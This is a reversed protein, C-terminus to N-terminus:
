AVLAELARRYRATSDAEAAHRGDRVQWRGGILVDRIPTANGSFVLADLLADGSRAVLAPSDPDLVLLDARHGAALAGVPRGSARAGGALARSWLAAGTNPRTPGAVILRRRLTLRQGYDLWRLEEVPSVSIHSDSGVGLTGGAALFDTLPFLGDGLNAETTPCLGAVAGSAALRRTEQATMHTAHILCWRADVPMHDYLWDVPRAGSWALCDEVEKTQEAVHIHVPATADLTHLGAVADRLEEPTVARLSHPALGVRCQPDGDTEVRLREVLALIAPVDNVFRRQGEVPPQGGFGSHAYLVPLLTLGIGATRAAAILRLALEARDAYPRGDPAHHVYHFEVVGTYGAKVMEVYLQTAVAQMVDPGMRDLFRYMTERWTWFDGGPRSPDAVEAFGALARQFAHSHLNPMGPVVPGALREAGDASGGPTVAALSGDAALDFRVSQAWGDPLLAAPAFLATM